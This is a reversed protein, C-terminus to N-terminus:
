DRLQQISFYVRNDTGGITLALASSGGAQYDITVMDGAYLQFIGSMQMSDSSVVEYGGFDIRPLAAQMFEVGNVSVAFYPKASPALAEPTTVTYNITASIMYRGSAPAVFGNSGYGVDIFGGSTTTWGM